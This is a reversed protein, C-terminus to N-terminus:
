GAPPGPPHRHQLDRVAHDREHWEELAGTPHWRLPAPEGDLDPDPLRYCGHYRELHRVLTARRSAEHADRELKATYRTECADTHGLEPAPWRGRAARQFCRLCCYQRRNRPAWAGPRPRGCGEVVCARM